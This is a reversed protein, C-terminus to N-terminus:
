PPKPLPYVISGEMDAGASWVLKETSIGALDQANSAYDCDRYAHHVCQQSNLFAGGRMVLAAQYRRSIRFGERLGKFEAKDASRGTVRLSRVANNRSGGRVVQISM